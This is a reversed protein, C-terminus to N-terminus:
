VLYVCLEDGNGLCVGGGIYGGVGVVYLGYGDVVFM